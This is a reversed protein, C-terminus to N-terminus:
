LVAKIEQQFDSVHKKILEEAAAEDRMQLAQVVEIHQEM